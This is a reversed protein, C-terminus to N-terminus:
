EKIILNIVKISTEIIVKSTKIKNYEFIIDNLM